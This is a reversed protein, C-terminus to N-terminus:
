LPSLSYYGTTTNEYVLQAGRRSEPDRDFRLRTSSYLFDVRPGNVALQFPSYHGQPLTGAPAQDRRGQSSRLIDNIRRNGLANLQPSTIRYFENPATGEWQSLDCVLTLSNAAEFMDQDLMRDNYSFGGSHVTMQILGSNYRKVFRCLELTTFIDVQIKRARSADDLVGGVQFWLELKRLRPFRTCMRLTYWPWVQKRDLWLSLEEIAPLLARLRDLQRGHYMIGHQDETWAREARGGYQPKDTDLVQLARITAGHRGISNAYGDLKNWTQLSVRRLRGPPILTFIPDVSCMYRERWFASLTLDELSRLQPALWRLVSDLPIDCQLRLGKVQSVKGDLRSWYRQVNELQGDPRGNSGDVYIGLETLQPLRESGTLNPLWNTLRDYRYLQFRPLIKLNPCSYILRRVLPMSPTEDGNLQNIQDHNFKLDLSHLNPNGTLETMLETQRPRLPTSGRVTAYLRVSPRQRLHQLLGGIAPWPFVNNVGWHLEVLGRFQQIMAFIRPVVTARLVRNREMDVATEWLPGDLVKLVRVAPYHNYQNVFELRRAVESPFQLRLVITEMQIYRACDRFGHCVQAINIFDDPGSIRAFELIHLVMEPPLDNM